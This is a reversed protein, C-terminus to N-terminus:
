KQATGNTLLKKRNNFAKIIEKSGKWQNGYQQWAWNLADVSPLTELYEVAQQDSMEQEPTRIADVDDRDTQVGFQKLLFYREGYTLASGLSKDLGNAGSSVWDIPLTEGSETDVWTFRIKIACFMETKERGNRDTQKIPTFSYEIVDKTLLLGANDMLPRIISLVKNGSVYPANNGQADKGLGIVAKQIELIKKYIAKTM